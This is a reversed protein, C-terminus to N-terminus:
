DEFDERCRACHRLHEEVAARAASGLGGDVYPFLEEELDLHRGITLEARLSAAVRSADIGDRVLAACATCGSIHRTSRLLAGADMTGTRMAQVDDGTLHREKLM